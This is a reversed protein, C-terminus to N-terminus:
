IKVPRRKLVSETQKHALILADRALQGDLLASATGTRIARVAEGLEPPFAATMDPTGLRPRIAKGKDTLVTLPMGMWSDFVLTARELHIEYGHTFPRAQQNIVGSTATVTLNADKFLFQSNFFEVVKGRMRGVSQVSQPMGFLLRIFHADHIHLDVMPGGCGNPDYFDKLWLPDSIVRNFHGGLLKGYKGGTIARYAFQYEPVFPLVHAIMLMKGAQRATRVMQKADNARLAIPKECLVHKGAKLAKIVTEAHLSPPLCVDIMDVSPDAFMEELEPYRAVGSLDMQEGQPGFNGKISRWDGALRKPDQECIARVKAGRVKEYALYHIMGMFGLGAIGVNVM